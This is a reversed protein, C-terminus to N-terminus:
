YLKEYLFVITCNAEFWEKTAENMHKLYDEDENCLIISPIGGKIKKKKGYKPNVTYDKQCGVLAKM